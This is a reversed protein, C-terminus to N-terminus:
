VAVTIVDVRRAKASRRGVRQAAATLKALDIIHGDAGCLCQTFVRGPAAGADPNRVVLVEGSYTVVAVLRGQRRTGARYCLVSLMREREPIGRLQANSVKVHALGGHADPRLRAGDPLKDYSDFRM